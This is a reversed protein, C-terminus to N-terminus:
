KEPAASDGRNLRQTAEYRTGFYRQAKVGLTSPRHGIASGGGFNLWARPIGRLVPAGSLRSHHEALLALPTFRRFMAGNQARGFYREEAEVYESAGNRRALIPALALDAASQERSVYAEFNKSAMWTDIYAYVNLTRPIVKGNAATFAMIPVGKWKLVIEEIGTIQACQCDLFHQDASSIGGPQAELNDKLAVVRIHRLLMCQCIEETSLFLLIPCPAFGHHRKLSNTICGFQM